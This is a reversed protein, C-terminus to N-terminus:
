FFSHHLAREILQKKLHLWEEKTPVQAIQILECSLTSELEYNSVVLSAHLENIKLQTVPQDILFLANYQQPLWKKIMTILFNDYGADGHFAFIIPQKKIKKPYQTSFQIMSLSLSVERTHTLPVLEQWDRQILRNEWSLHLNQFRQDVLHDISLSHKEFQDTLVRLLHLNALYASMQEIGENNTGDILPEESLRQKILNKMNTEEQYHTATHAISEHWKPSSYSICHIVILYVWALENTSLQQIGLTKKLFPMIKKEFRKFSKRSQITTLTEQPIEGKKRRLWREKLISLWLMARFNSIHLHSEFAQQLEAFMVKHTEPSFLYTHDTVISRRFCMYFNFFFLRIDNEKGLLDGNKPSFQIRHNILELNMHRIIKRLASSSLHYELRMAEFSQHFGRLSRDILKYTITERALLLLFTDLTEGDPIKLQYGIMKISLLQITPPLKARLAQIDTRLTPPTCGIEQVLETISIIENRKRLYTLIKIQRHLQKNEHLKFFTEM